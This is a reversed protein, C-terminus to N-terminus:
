LSGIHLTLESHGIELNLNQQLLFLNHSTVSLGSYKNSQNKLWAM